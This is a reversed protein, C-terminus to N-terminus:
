YEMTGADPDIKATYVDEGYQFDVIIRDGDVTPEGIGDIEEGISSEILQILPQQAETLRM